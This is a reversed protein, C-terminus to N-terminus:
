HNVLLMHKSVAIGKSTELKYFYIGPTNNGANWTIHHIGASTHEQFVEDLLQGQSNYVSLCVDQEEDLSFKITTQGSFPNPYNSFLQNKNDKRTLIGTSNPAKYIGDFTEVSKFVKQGTSVYIHGNPSISMSKITLANLGENCSVWTGMDNTYYIGNNATSAILTEEGQLLFSLTNEHQLGRHQWVNIEENFFYIGDNNTAVILEGSDSFSICNVPHDMELNKWTEGEDSSIYIGRTTGAIYENLDTFIVDNIYFKELWFKYPTKCGGDVYSCDFIRRWNKGEADYQYLNGMDTEAMLDGEGNLFVKNIHGCGPEQQHIYEWNTGDKSYFIGGPPEGGGVGYQGIGIYISNNSAIYLDNCALSNNVTLPEWNLGEDHSVFLSDVLSLWLVGPTKSGIYITNDPGVEIITIEGSTQFNVAEWTIQSNVQNYIFCGFLLLTITITKM